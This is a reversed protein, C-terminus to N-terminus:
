SYENKHAGHYGSRGELTISLLGKRKGNGRSDLAMCRRALHTGGQYAWQNTRGLLTGPTGIAQMLLNLAVGFLVGDTAAHIRAVCTLQWRPKCLVAPLRQAGSYCHGVVQVRMVWEIQRM